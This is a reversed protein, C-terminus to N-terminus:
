VRRVKYHLFVEDGLSRAELLQLQPALAETFGNGEVPTPAAAGGLVLPCVTLWCEDILEAQLLSAVVTGGGLVVLQRLGLAWLHQLVAQWDVAEAVTIPTLIREFANGEKWPHAGSPTTLLWRTVPQRFFTLNPDIAGSRSCVIHVPQPPKGQQQRQQLLKPQTVRLTSGYARLTGAGFLVGDAQAVQQELHAKDNDSGFRAAKRTFDAIKGDASM